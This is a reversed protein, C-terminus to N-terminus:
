LYFSANCIMVTSGFFIFGFGGCAGVHFALLVTTATSLCCLDLTTVECAVDDTAAPFPNRKM